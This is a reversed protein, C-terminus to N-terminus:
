NLGLATEIESMTCALDVDQGGISVRTNPFPLTPYTGETRSTSISFGSYLGGLYRITEGHKEVTISVLKEEKINAIRLYQHANFYLDRLNTDTSVVKGDLASFLLSMREENLNGKDIGDEFTLRLTYPTVYDVLPNKSETGVMEKPEIVALVIESTLSTIKFSPLYESISFRPLNVMYHLEYCENSNFLKMNPVDVHSGLREYLFFVDWIFFNGALTLIEIEEENFPFNDLKFLNESYYKKAHIALLFFITDRIYLPYRISEEYEAKELWLPESEGDINYTIVEYDIKEGTNTIRSMSEIKNIKFRDFIDREKLISHSKNLYQVTKNVINTAKCYM